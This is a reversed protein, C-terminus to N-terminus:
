REFLAAIPVGLARALRTLEKDIVEREGSEIRKISDRTIDWGKVQCRAALETQSFGADKRLRSVREGVINRDHRRVPKYKKPRPM